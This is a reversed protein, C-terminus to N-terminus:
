HDSCDGLEPRKGTEPLGFTAPLERPSWQTWRYLAEVFFYDGFITGVEPKGWKESGKLLVSDYLNDRSLYDDSILSLLMEEAADLYKEDKTIQYLELAASAVIATASTDRPNMSDISADFDSYPVLDDTQAKTAEIFYDFCAISRELMRDLKTYRYYMAYAYVAWAQGRSWTSDDRWGQHTRKLDVTGDLNYSVVHFTSADERVNNQWTNDAHQVAYDIYEPKGGNLGVWLVLEMNMLQDINVEFPLEDPNAIRQDWSRFCGIDPNYRQDVLIDAGAILVDLYDQNKQGGLTCGLGFSDFVQFGTDNDTVYARSRNGETWHLAKEQWNTDETMAFLYWYIGPIFGSTWTSDTKVIWNGSEDTYSTFSENNNELVTIALHDAKEMVLDLVSFEAYSEAEGPKIEERVPGIQRSPRPQSRDEPQVPKELQDDAAIPNNSPDTEEKSCSSCITLVGSVLLVCLLISFVKGKNLM